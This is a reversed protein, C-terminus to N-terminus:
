QDKNMAHDFAADMADPSLGRLTELESLIKDLKPLVEFTILNKVEAASTGFKDGQPTSDKRPVSFNLYQGKEEIEVEVKDGRKWDKTQANDFGSLWKEGFETCQLGLSVFPKGTRNSVREKRSLNTITVTMLKSM